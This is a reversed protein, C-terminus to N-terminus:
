TAQYYSMSLNISRCISLFPLSHFPSFCTVEMSVEKRESVQIKEMNKNENKTSQIIGCFKTEVM